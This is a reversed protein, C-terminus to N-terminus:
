TLRLIAFPWDMSRSSWRIAETANTCGALRLASIALSHAEISWREGVDRLLDALSPRM